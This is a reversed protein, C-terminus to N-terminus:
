VRIHNELTGKPRLLPHEKRKNEPAKAFNRFAVILRTRDTRGDKQDRRRDAHSLEARVPGIKVFNLISTNKSYRDLFNLNRSCRVLFIPVKCSFLHINIVMDRETRRLILFTESFNSSLILVGVSYKKRGGNTLIHPFINYLRVPWLHCYPAYANCTPYLCV